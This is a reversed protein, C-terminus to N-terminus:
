VTGIGDSVTGIGNRETRETGNRWVLWVSMYKPNNLKVTEFAKWYYQFAFSVSVKQLM